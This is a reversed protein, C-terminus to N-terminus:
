AASSGPLCRKSLWGELRVPSFGGYPIIPLTSSVDADNSARDAGRDWGVGMVPLRIMWRTTLLSYLDPFAWSSSCHAATMVRRAAAQAACRILPSATLPSSSCLLLGARCAAPRSSEFVVFVIRLDDSLSPPDSVM